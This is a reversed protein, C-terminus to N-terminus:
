EYVVEGECQDRSLKTKLPNEYIYEKEKLYAYEKEKLEKNERSFEECIERLYALEEEAKERKKIENKLENSLQNNTNQVREMNGDIVICPGLENLENKLNANAQQLDEVQKKSKDLKGDKKILEKRWKDAEKNSKKTQENEKKNEIKRNLKLLDNYYTLLENDIRLDSNDTRLDSNDIRLDSINEQLMAIIAQYGAIEDQYEAQSAQFAEWSECVEEKINKIEKIGAKDDTPNNKRFDNESCDLGALLSENIDREKSIRTELKKKINNLVEIDELYRKLITKLKLIGDDKKKNSGKLTNNENELCNVRVDTEQLKKELDLRITEKEALLKGLEEITDTADTLKQESENLKKKVTEDSHNGIGYSYVYSEGPWAEIADLKKILKQYLEEVEVQKANEGESLAIKLEKFGEEVAQYLKETQAAGNLAEQKSQKMNIDVEQLKQMIKENNGVGVGRGCSSYASFIFSNFLAVLLAGLQPPSIKNRTNRTQM